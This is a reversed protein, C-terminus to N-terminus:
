KKSLRESLSPSVSPSLGTDGHTVKATVMARPSVSANIVTGVPHSESSDHSSNVSIGIIALYTNIDWQHAPILTAIFVGALSGGIILQQRLNPM